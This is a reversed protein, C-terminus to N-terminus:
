NRSPTGPAHALRLAEEPGTVSTLRDLSEFWSHIQGGNRGSAGSGCIDAELVTVKQGPDAELIRIATWLGTLGGGIIAIDASVSRNLAPALTDDLGRTSQLWYSQDADAAIVPPRLKFQKHHSM